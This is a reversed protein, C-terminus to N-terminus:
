GNAYITKQILEHVEHIMTGLYGKTLLLMNDYLHDGSEIPYPEIEGEENYSFKLHQRV